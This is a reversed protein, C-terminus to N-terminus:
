RRVGRLRGSLPVARHLPPIAPAPIDHNANAATTVAGTGNTYDDARIWSQTRDRCEDYDLGRWLMEARSTEGHGAKLHPYFQTLIFVGDNVPMELTVLVTALQQGSLDILIRNTLWLSAGLTDALVGSFERAMRLRAFRVLLGQRMAEQAAPEEAERVLSDRQVLAKMRQRMDEERIRSAAREDAVREQSLSPARANEQGQHLSVLADVVKVSLNARAAVARAHAPGQTRAIGILTDDDIAPSRTLFIAAIEIPQTGIFWAVSKPVTACRSLAAVANRRAEIGSAKFVPEFLEAFQRLEHRGPHSMSEYSSVTAMLVVDKTRAM